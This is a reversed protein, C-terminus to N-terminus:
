YPLCCLGGGFGCYYNGSGSYCCMRSNDVSSYMIIGTNPTFGTGYGGLPFGTATCPKGVDTVWPTCAVITKINGGGSTRLFTRVQAAHISRVLRTSDFNVRISAIFSSGAASGTINAVQISSVVLSNSQPSAPQGVVALPPAAANAASLLSGGMDIVPPHSTGIRSADFTKGALHYGCVSSDALVAMMAKELDLSGLKESLARTERMQGSMLSAFALMMIGMIGISVLVQVISQGQQNEFLFRSRGTRLLTSRVIRRAASGPRFDFRRPKIFSRM